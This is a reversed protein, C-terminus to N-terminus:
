KAWRPDGVPGGSTSATRLPSGSPLTFDTTSATWNIPAAQIEQGNAINLPDGIQNVLNYGYVRNFIVNSNTARFLDINISEAGAKPTNAIITNEVILNSQTNIDFLVRRANSGFNNITVQDLHFNPVFSGMSTEYRILNHNFGYFTSKYIYFNNVALKQIEFVAYDNPSEKFLVNEIKIFDIKHDNANSGQSGRIVARGVNQIICNEITISTFTAQANNASEGLLNVIYSGAINAQDLTLGRLTIGAGDGKIAFEKYIIKTDNPDGSTSGIILHKKLLTHAGSTGLDYIGPDLGIAEGSSTNAIVAALDDSPTLYYDFFPAETTTFVVEGRELVDNFLKATYSAVPSLGTVLAYGNTRDEETLTYDVVDSTANNILQIHTLAENARFRLVVRNYFIDTELPNSFLQEGTIRFSGSVEWNSAAIKGDGKARVRAYYTTKIQIDNSTLIIGASDTTFTKYVPDFTNNLAVEVEYGLPSQLFLSADWTLHVNTEGSSPSIRGPTFYRAPNFTDDVKKECAIFAISAFLVFSLTKYSLLIKM